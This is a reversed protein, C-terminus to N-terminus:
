SNVEIDKKTEKQRKREYFVKGIINCCQVISFLAFLSGLQTLKQNDFDVFDTLPYGSDNILFNIWCVLDYFNNMFVKFILVDM